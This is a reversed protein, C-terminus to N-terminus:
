FTGVAAFGAEGPAFAPTVRLTPGDGAHASRGPTEGHLAATTVVPDHDTVIFGALATLVGIGQFIGSAALLLKNAIEHDCDLNGAVCLNREALDIWPGAVPIYLRHDVSQGSEAGFAVVPVYAATFIILGTGVVAWSPGSYATTTEAVPAPPPPAGELWSVPAVTPLTPPPVAIASAGGQALAVSSWALVTALTATAGLTRKM